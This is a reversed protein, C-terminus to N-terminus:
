SKYRNLNKGEKASIIRVQRQFKMSGDGFEKSVRSAIEHMSTGGKTSTLTVDSKNTKKIAQMASYPRIPNNGIVKYGLNLTQDRLYIVPNKPHLNSIMEFDPM